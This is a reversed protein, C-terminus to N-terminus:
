HGYPLQRLYVKMGGAVIMSIIVLLGIKWNHELRVGDAVPEEIWHRRFDGYWYWFILLGMPMAALLGVAIEFGDLNAFFYAPSITLYALGATWAARQLPRANLAVFWVLLWSVLLMGTLPVIFTVILMAVQDNM